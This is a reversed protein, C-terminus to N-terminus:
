RSSKAFPHPNRQFISLSPMPFWVTHLWVCWWSGVFASIRDAPNDSWRLSERHARHWNPRPRPELNDWRLSM